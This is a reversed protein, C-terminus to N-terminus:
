RSSIENIGVNRPSLGCKGAALCYGFTPSSFRRGLEVILSQAEPGHVGFTDVVVPIFTHAFMLESYKTFKHAEAESAASGAAISSKNIHSTALTDPCTFDWLLCRGKACPVLTVGDPRKGDGHLLGPPELLTLFM